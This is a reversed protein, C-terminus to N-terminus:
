HLHYIGNKDKFVEARYKLETMRLDNFELFKALIILIDKTYFRGQQIKILIDLNVALYQRFTRQGRFLPEVTGDWRKQDKTFM